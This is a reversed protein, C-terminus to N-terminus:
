TKEADKKTNSQYCLPRAGVMIIANPQLPNKRLDIWLPKLWEPQQTIVRKMYGNDGFSLEFSKSGVAHTDFSDIENHTLLLTHLRPTDLLQVNKLNSETIECHQLERHQLTLDTDDFTTKEIYLSQLIPLKTCLHWLALVGVLRTASLSLSHIFTFTQNDFYCSANLPMACAISCERRITKNPHVICHIILQSANDANFSEIQYDVADHTPTDIFVNTFLHSDTERHMLKPMLSNKQPDSAWIAKRPVSTITYADSEKTLYEICTFPANKAYAVSMTLGVIPITIGNQHMRIHKIPKIITSLSVIKETDNQTLTTPTSDASFLPTCFVCLSFLYPMKHM